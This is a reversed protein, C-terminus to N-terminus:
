QFFKALTQLWLNWMRYFKKDFMNEIKERNTEMNKIWETVTYIYDQNNDIVEETTFHKM